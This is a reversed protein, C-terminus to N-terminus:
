NFENKLNVWTENASTSLGKETPKALYGVNSVSKSAKKNEWETKNLIYLKGSLDILVDFKTQVPNFQEQTFVIGDV